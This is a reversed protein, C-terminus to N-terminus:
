RLAEMESSLNELDFGEKRIRLDYYLLVLAVSPLPAIVSGILQGGVEFIPNTFDHVVMGAMIGWAGGLAVVLIWVIVGMAMVVGVVKNRDYKVLQKSRVLADSGRKGELVVAPVVLSLTFAWIIGPIIFLLMGLVVWIGVLIQAGLLGPFIGMTRSMAQGVTLPHELYRESVMYTIAGVVLTTAIMQFAWSSLGYAILLGPNSELQSAINMLNGVLTLGLVPLHCLVAIPALKAFESGYIRFTADLLAGFSMAELRRTSM